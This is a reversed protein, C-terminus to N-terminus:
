SEHHLEKFFLNMKEISKKGPKLELASSIDILEPEFNSIIEKVNECSIGGALWLPTFEKTEKVIHEPISVGTGGLVNPVRADILVRPEGLSLYKKVGDLHSSHSVRVAGYHGYSTDLLSPIHCDHFQIADLIGYEAKTIAQIGESSHPNTIVGVLLPYLEMSNLIKRVEQILDGSAQRPSDSFVFGLLDAGLEAAQVADEINTIGCIKVLPRHPDKERHIERRLALAKWFDGERNPKADNFAKVLQPTFSPKKAVNEGVLIGEFGLNKAFTADEITKIGSEFVAKCPLSNRFSAPILPDIHFTALDRSNVGAVVDGDQIAEELKLLDDNERIEIFPTMGFERAKRALRLLTETDLIRAILLVADAGCLYSIEIEEEKLLFDKRLISCDSIESSVNMLDQLSGKFFHTETLVSIAQTGANAYIKATKVADLQPAIDGKSPSARKIELITGSPNLFQVIPRTRTKPISFGLSPGLRELDKKRQEVIKDLINETKMM